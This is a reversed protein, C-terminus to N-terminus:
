TSLDSHQDPRVCGYEAVYLLMKMTPLTKELTNKAGFFPPESDIVKYQSPTNSQFTVYYKIPSLSVYM